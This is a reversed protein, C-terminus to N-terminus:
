RPLANQIFQAHIKRVLALNLVDARCDVSTLHAHSSLSARLICLSSLVSAHTHQSRCDSMCLLSNVRRGKSEQDYALHLLRCALGDEVDAVLPFCLRFSWACCIHSLITHNMWVVHKWSFYARGLFWWWCRLDDSAACSPVVGRLRWRMGACFRQIAMLYASLLQWRTALRVGLRAICASCVLTCLRFCLSIMKLRLQSHGCALAVALKEITRPFRAADLTVDSSAFRAFVSVIM